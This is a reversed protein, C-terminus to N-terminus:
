CWAAAYDGPQAAASAAFAGVIALVGLVLFRYGSLRAMVLFRTGRTDPAARTEM